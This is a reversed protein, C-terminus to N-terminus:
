DLLMRRNENLYLAIWVNQGTTAIENILYMGQTLERHILVNNYYFDVPFLNLYLSKYNQTAFGQQRFWQFFRPADRQLLGSWLYNSRYFKM